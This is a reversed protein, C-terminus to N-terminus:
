PKPVKNMSAPASVTPKPMPAAQSILDRYLAEYGAASAEISFAEARQRANRGLEAAAAPDALLKRIAAALAAPQPYRVLVGSAGDDIFSRLAPLDLAVVPLGQAMGELVALGFGEFASASVLIDSVALLATVDSRTGLFRIHHELGREAANDELAPRLPGDGALLLLADPYQPVLEALTDLLLAHGKGEVLRAVAILVPSRGDLNLEARLTASQVPDPAAYASAPLGNHIVTMSDPPLGLWAIYAEAVPASVAVSHTLNIRSLLRNTPLMTRQRLFAPIDRLRHPFAIRGPPMGHFTNVVPVGLKLALMQGFARDIPTSNTHVIGIKAQRAFKLARRFAGAAKHKGDLGAVLIPIGAKRYDDECAGGRLACVFHEGGRERLASVTRLLMIQGGGLALDPLIHLVPPSM